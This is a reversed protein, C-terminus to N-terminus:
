EFYDCHECIEDGRLPNKPNLHKMRPDFGERLGDDVSDCYLLGIEEEGRQRWVHAATCFQIRSIRENGIINSEGKKGPSTPVSYFQAYSKLSPPMGAADSKARIIRGRERGFEKLGARLVKEGEEKGLREIVKKAINSLLMVYFESFERALAKLENLEETM